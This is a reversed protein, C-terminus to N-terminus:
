NNEHKKQQSINEYQLIRRRVTKYKIIKEYKAIKKQCQILKKQAPHIIKIKKEYGIIEQRIKKM